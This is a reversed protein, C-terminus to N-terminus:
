PETSIAWWGLAATATGVLLALLASSGANAALTGAGIAIVGIITAFRAHYPLERTKM